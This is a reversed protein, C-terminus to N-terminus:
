SADFLLSCLLLRITLFRLFVVVVNDSFGAVPALVAALWRCSDDFDSSLLVLVSGRLPPPRGEVIVAFRDQLVIFHLFHQQQFKV